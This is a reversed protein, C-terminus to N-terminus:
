VLGEVWPNEVGIRVEAGSREEALVLPTLVGEVVNVGIVICELPVLPSCVGLPKVPRPSNVVGSNLDCM